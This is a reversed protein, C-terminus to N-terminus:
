YMYEINDYVLESVDQNKMQCTEESERRAKSFHLRWQVFAFLHLQLCTKTYRHLLYDRVDRKVMNISKLIKKMGEDKSMSAKLTLMFILHDWRNNVVELKALFTIKKVRAKRQIEVM